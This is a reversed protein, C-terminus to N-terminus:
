VGHRVLVAARVRLAQAGLAHLMAQPAQEARGCRPELLHPGVHALELAVPRLVVGEKRSELRQQLDAHPRARWPRQPAAHSSGRATRGAM